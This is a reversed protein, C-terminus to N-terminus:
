IVEIPSLQDSDGGINLPRGVHHYLEPKKKATKLGMLYTFIEYKEACVECFDRCTFKNSGINKSM